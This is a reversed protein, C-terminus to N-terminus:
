LWFARSINFGLRLDGKLPNGTTFPISHAEDIGLSNTFHIQFVHGGTELDFGFAFCGNYSSFSQVYKNLRFCYEVTLAFRKSLKYRGMVVLGYIDNKDGLTDVINYHVLTPSVQLSLKENFKRAIMLQYVYCFRDTFYHYKNFGNADTNVKETILDSIALGTVSVPMSNDTTQRLIRYKVFGDVVKHSSTRGIGVQLRDTISYELGLRIDASGDLGWFNNPGSSLFGFRHSIRFDLTRKGQTEITHFNVIRTSKFTYGVFDKKKPQDKFLDSLDQSQATGLLLLLGLSLFIKKIM